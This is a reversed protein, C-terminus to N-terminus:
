PLVSGIMLYTWHTPADHGLAMAGEVSIFVAHGLSLDLFGQHLRTTAADDNADYM